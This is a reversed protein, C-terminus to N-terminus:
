GRTFEPVYQGGHRAINARIKDREHWWAGSVLELVSRGTTDHHEHYIALCTPCTQSCWWFDHMAVTAGCPEGVGGPKAPDFARAWCTFTEGPIYPISDPM